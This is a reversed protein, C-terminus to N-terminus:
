QASVLDKLRTRIEEQGTLLLHKEDERKVGWLNEIFATQVRSILELGTEDSVKGSTILNMVNQLEKPETAERKHEKIWRQYRQYAELVAARSRLENLVATKKKRIVEVQHSRPM